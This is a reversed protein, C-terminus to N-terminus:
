EAIAVSQLCLRDGDRVASLRVPQKSERFKELDSVDAPDSAVVVTGDVLTIVADSGMFSEVRAVLAPGIQIPETIPPADVVAPRSSLRRVDRPEPAAAPPPPEDQVEEVTRLGKLVDAFGDRAAFGRARMKLMRDPYQQWPGTKTWLAARKAQGISFTGSLTRASDRRRLECVATTDDKTLDAAALREVRKGAVLYYEDIDLFVPSARLVGLLGDGYLAPRGNTVFISQLAAMPALGVEMGMQIAIFVAAPKGHYHTPLLESAAAVKAFRWGEELTRPAMGMQFSVKALPAPGPEPDGVTETTTATTTEDSM